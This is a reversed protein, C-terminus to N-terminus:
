PRGRGPPQPGRGAEHGPAPKGGELTLKAQLLLRSRWVKWDEDTFFANLQAALAALPADPFLRTLEDRLAQADGTARVRELLGPDERAREGMKTGLATVVGYAKRVDM